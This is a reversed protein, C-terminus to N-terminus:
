LHIYKINRDFNTIMKHPSIELVTLAYFSIVLEEKEFKIKFGNFKYYWSEVIKYM